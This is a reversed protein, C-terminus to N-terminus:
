SRPWGWPAGVPGSPLCSRMSGETWKTSSERDGNRQIGETHERQQVPRDPLHPPEGGMEKALQMMHPILDPTVRGGESPIVTLEAGFAKMANRKEESFADSTVIRLRYGKVACVFALSTGTSGGTYEVVTDGPKLLGQREAGEIMALAMRDKYSGTPNFFELKMFVSAGSGKAIRNLKVLPTSGIARLANEKLNM